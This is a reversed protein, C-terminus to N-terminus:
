QNMVEKGKGPRRLNQPAPDGSACAPFRFIANEKREAIARGGALANLKGPM